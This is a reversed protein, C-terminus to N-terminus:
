KGSDPLGSVVRRPLRRMGGRGDFRYGHRYVKKFLRDVAVIRLTGEAKHKRLVALIKQGITASACPRTEDRHFQGDTGIRWLGSLASPFCTATLDLNCARKNRVVRVSNETIRKEYVLEM